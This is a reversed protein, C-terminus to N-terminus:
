SDTSEHDHERSIQVKKKLYRNIVAFLEDSKVPKSLYDTFGERLCRKRSKEGASATLAIIPNKVFEPMSRLNRVAELGDMEPM